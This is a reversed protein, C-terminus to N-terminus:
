EQSRTPREATGAQPTILSARSAVFLGRGTLGDALLRRHQFGAADLARDYDEDTFLGVRFQLDHYEVKGPEALVYHVHLQASTGERRSVHYQSAFLGRDTVHQIGVRSDDFQEPAFYREILLVGDTSVHSGMREVAHKLGEGTEAHCVSSTLCSVVDFKRDLEFTMFSGEHLPVESGVHRRAAALMAASIDLGAVEFWQALSALHRGTGCAVDLWTAAKPRHSIVLTRLYAGESSYDRDRSFLDYLREAYVTDTDPRSM